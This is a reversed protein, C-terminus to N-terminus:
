ARVRPLHDADVLRGDPGFSLAWVSGKAAPLDDALEVASGAALRRLADPIVEGQSCVAAPPGALLSRLLSATDAPDASWVRAALAEHEEVPLGLRSAAPQLTATCRELPAAVLRQVGYLPLLAGLAAGEAAGRDDLPRADDHGDWRDRSGAHGHRVLLLTSTRVPGAAFRDLVAADDPVTVLRRAEDVSTWRLEDVEDNPAFDGSRCCVAWWRVTKPTPVGDVLVEYRSTGLTRGVVGRFGTEEELERVAGAVALEHRDLKGKPLSWDDYRPRHVVAVQVGGASPRWLVGGAALVERV